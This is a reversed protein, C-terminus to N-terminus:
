GGEWLYLQSLLGHKSGEQENPANTTQPNVRLPGVLVNSRPAERKPIKSLLPAQPRGEVSSKVSEVMGPRYPTPRGDVVMRAHHHWLPSPPHVPFVPDVVRGPTSMPGSILCFAVVVGPKRQVYGQRPVHAQSACRGLKNQILLVPVFVHRSVVPSPEVSSVPIWVVVGWHAIQVVRRDV